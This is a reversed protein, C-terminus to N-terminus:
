RQKGIRAPARAGARGAGQRAALLLLEGDAAHQDALGDSIRSSSGESPM